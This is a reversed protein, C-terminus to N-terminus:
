SNSQLVTCQVCRTRERLLAYLQNKADADNVDSEVRSLTAAVAAITAVEDPRGDPMLLTCDHVTTSMRKVESELSRGEQPSAGFDM